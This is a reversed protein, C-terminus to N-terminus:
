PGYTKPYCGLNFSFAPKGVKQLERLAYAIDRFLRVTVEANSSYSMSQPQVLETRRETRSMPAAVQADAKLTVEQGHRELSARRSISVNNPVGMRLM